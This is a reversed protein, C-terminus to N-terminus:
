WQKDLRTHGVFYYKSLLSARVANTTYFAQALNQKAQRVDPHNALLQIPIDVSVSKPFVMGSLISREIHQSPM